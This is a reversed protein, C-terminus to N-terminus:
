AEANFAAIWASLQSPNNGLHAAWRTVPAISMPGPCFPILGSAKMIPGPSLLCGCDNRSIESSTLAVAPDGLIAVLDEPHAVAEERPLDDRRCRSYLRQNRQCLRRPRRSTEHSRKRKRISTLTEGRKIMLESRLVKRESRPLHPVFGIAGDQSLRRHNPERLTWTEPTYQGTISCHYAIEQEQAAARIKRDREFTRLDGSTKANQLETNSFASM